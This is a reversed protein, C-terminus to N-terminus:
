KKPKRIKKDEETPISKLIKILEPKTLHSVSHLEHEKPFTLLGRKTM